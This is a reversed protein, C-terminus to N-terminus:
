VNTRAAGGGGGGGTGIGRIVAFFCIPIEHLHKLIHMEFM